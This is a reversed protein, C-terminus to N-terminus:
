LSFKEVIKVSAFENYEQSYKYKICVESGIPYKSANLKPRGIFQWKPLPETAEVEPQKDFDMLRVQLSEYVDPDKRSQCNYGLVVGISEGEILSM